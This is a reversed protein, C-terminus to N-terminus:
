EEPGRISEAEHVGGPALDRLIELFSKSVLRKARKALLPVPSSPEHRSFYECIRDLARIVDERSTIEGSSVAATGQAAVEGVLAADVVGRRRLHEGLLAQIRLLIPPLATLDPAHMTGVTKLLFADIAGFTENARSVAEATAKLEELDADQFTADIVSMEVPQTGAEPHAEGSAIEIDRLSFQGLGRSRVLPVSKIARLTTEQDVLTAIANVRMTPDNDDEPDLRPHVNTWQQELVARLLVLGDAFGAAGDTRILSRTLYSIARLDRSRSLVALSKSKLDKWDPEEAAVITDGMEQEPKSQAAREMEGFAPDYELDEGCPSEPSIEASLGAIDIISM